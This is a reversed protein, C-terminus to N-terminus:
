HHKARLLPSVRVAADDTASMNVLWFCLKGEVRYSWLQVEKGKELGNRPEKWVSTWNKTLVYSSSSTLRWKGLLLESIKGCPQVLSVEIKHGNDLLASEGRTLFSQAIKGRPISFRSQGSTVDSNFLKKQVVLRVESGGFERVMAEVCGPVEGGQMGCGEDLIMDPSDRFKRKRQNKMSCNLSEVNEKKRCEGFQLGFLVAAAALVEPDSEEPREDGFEMSNETPPLTKSLNFRPSKM